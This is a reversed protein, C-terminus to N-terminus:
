NRYAAGGICWEFDGKAEVCVDVARSPSGASPHDLLYLSWERAAKRTRKEWGDDTAGLTKWSRLSAETRLEHVRALRLQRLNDPWRASVDEAADVALLLDSARDPYHALINVWTWAVEPDHDDVQRVHQEVLREWEPVDGKAYADAMLVKSIDARAVRSAGDWKRVLCDIDAEDLHGQRAELDLLRLNACSETGTTAAAAPAAAGLLTALLILSALMTEEVGPPARFLDPARTADSCVV